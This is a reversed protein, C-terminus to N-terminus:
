SSRPWRRRNCTPDLNAGDAIWDRVTQYYTSHQKALQGGEHPVAGTMKLLMLSDDPAANNVRRSKIDDTFARIDFLPDYGRLSLKFGGKGDKAGHCTGANCGMKSIVPNVDQLWNPHATKSLGSVVVNASTSVKGLTIKLKTQGDKSPIAKGRKTIEAIPQELDYAVLRTVDAKEGNALNATVVMQQYRGPGGITLMKPSVELSAISKPLTEKEWAVRPHEDANEPKKANALNALPVPIFEKM